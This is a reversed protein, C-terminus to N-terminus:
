QKKQISAKFEKDDILYFHFFKFFYFLFSEM